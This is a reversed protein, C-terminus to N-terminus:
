AYRDIEYFWSNHRFLDLLNIMMMTISNLFLKLPVIQSAYYSSISSNLYNYSSLLIFFILIPAYSKSLSIYNSQDYIMIMLYYKYNNNLNNHM